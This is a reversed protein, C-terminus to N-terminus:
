THPCSISLGETTSKKESWLRPLMLWWTAVDNDARHHSSGFYFSNGAYV